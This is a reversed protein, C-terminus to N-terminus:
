RAHGRLALTTPGSFAGETDVVARVRDGIPGNLVTNDALAGALLVTPALTARGDINAGKDETTDGFTLCAIDFWPAGAFSTQIYVTVGSGSDAAGASFLAYIGLSTIGELDEVATGTQTGAAAITFDEEGTADTFPFVVPEM